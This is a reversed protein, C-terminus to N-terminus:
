LQGGRSARYAARVAPGCRDCKENMGGGRAAPSRGVTHHAPPGLADAHRGPRPPRRVGTGDPRRLRRHRVAARRPQNRRRGHLRDPRRLAAPRHARCRRHRRRHGQRRSPRQPPPTILTATIITKHRYEGGSAIIGLILMAVCCVTGIKLMKYTSATTGLAPNHNTGAEVADVVISIVALGIAIALSILFARTTALKRVEARTLRAIATM